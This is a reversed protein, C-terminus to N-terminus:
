SFQALMHDAMAQAGEIDDLLDMMDGKYRLAAAMTHSLDVELELLDNEGQEQLDNAEQIDELFKNLLEDFSLNSCTAEAISLDWQSDKASAQNVTGQPQVNSIKPTTNTNAVSHPPPSYNSAHGKTVRDISFENQGRTVPQKQMERTPVATSPRARNPAIGDPTVANNYEQGNMTSRAFPATDNNQKVNRGRGPPTITTSNQAAITPVNTTTTPVFSNHNSQKSGAANGTKQVSQAFSFAMSRGPKGVTFSPKSASLGTNEAGSFNGNFGKPQSPMVTSDTMTPAHVNKQVDEMNVDLPDLNLDMSADLEDETYRSADTGFQNATEISAQYLADVAEAALPAFGPIVVSRDDAEISANDNPPANTGGNKLLTTANDTNSPNAVNHTRVVNMKSNEAQNTNPSTSNKVALSDINSTEKPNATYTVRPSAEASATLANRTPSIRDQNSALNSSRNAANQPSLSVRNATMPRFSTQQKPPEMTGGAKLAMTNETDAVKSPGADVGQNKSVHWKEADFKEEEMVADNVGVANKVSYYSTATLDDQVEDEGEGSISEPVKTIDRDTDLRSEMPSFEANGFSEEFQNENVLETEPAARVSADPPAEL